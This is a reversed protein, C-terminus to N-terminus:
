FIIAPPDLTIRFIGELTFKVSISQNGDSVRLNFLDGWSVNGVTVEANYGLTGRIVSALDEYDLIFSDAYVTIDFGATLDYSSLESWKWEEAGVSFTFDEEPMIARIEAAFSDAGNIGIKTKKPLILGSVDSGYTKGNVTVSFTESEKDETKPSFFAILVVAAILAVVILFLIFRKANSM